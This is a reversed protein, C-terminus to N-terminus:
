QKEKNESKTDAKREKIPEAVFEEERIPARSFLKSNLRKKKKVVKKETNPNDAVKVEVAPETIDPITKSDVKMDDSIATIGKIGTEKAKKTSVQKKTATKKNTVVIEKKEVPETIKTEAARVVPAKSVDATYMEKFEKKGHTQKYDVFGYISAGIMLTAGVYLISKM